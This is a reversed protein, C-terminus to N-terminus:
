YKQFIKLFWRKAKQFFSTTVTIPITGNSDTILGVVDIVGYGWNADHGVANNKAYKLLHERIQEVTKCDNKGTAQEQDRHKALLLAVVGSVFPTAMSNHVILGNAIFNHKNKITLDFVEEAGFYEIAKIKELVIDIANSTTEDSSKNDVTRKFLPSDLRKKFKSNCINLVNKIKKLNPTTFWYLNYIKNKTIQEKYSINSCKVGMMELLVKIDQLLQLNSLQIRLHGKFDIYGETDIIGSLFAGRLENSLEYIWKPIRKTYANDYLGLELFLNAIYTSYIFLNDPNLDFMKLSTAREFLHRYQYPLLENTKTHAKNSLRAFGNDNYFLYGDGLYAGIFQCLEKSITLPGKLVQIPTNIKKFYKIIKTHTKELLKNVASQNDKNINTFSCIVDGASLDKLQVWKYNKGDFTYFPHNDTAFISQHNTTLKFIPKIGNSIKNVCTDEVIKLTKEDLCYVKDDSSMDKIYKPGKPTYILTNKRLCTGSLTAYSKNLWTSYIDVGPASFDAEPGTSNFRAPRGKKDYATICITEPFKAPYNIANSRGDNGAAAIIPINMEYLDKILQHFEPDYYDSGLSMSIVHPKIKKAYRLADKIANFDGTGDEGLVKVTIINYKPAVGVIGIENNRAAIIGICHSSHGARDDIDPEDNLFSKCKDILVADELDPHDSYGTDIVMVIIDDGQTIKWTEPVNLQTIGWGQVQSLSAIVRKVTFPPLKIIQQNKNM